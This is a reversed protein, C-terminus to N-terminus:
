EESEWDGMEYDPHKDLKENLEDIDVFDYTGKYYVEFVSEMLEGVSYEPFDKEFKLGFQEFDHDELGDSIDSLELINESDENMWVSYYLKGEYPEIKEEDDSDSGNIIDTYSMPEEYTPIDTIRTRGGVEKGMIKNFIELSKEDLYMPNIVGKDILYKMAAEPGEKKLIETLKKMESIYADKFEDGVKWVKQTKLIKGIIRLREAAMKVVSSKEDENLEPNLITEFAKFVTEFVGDLLRQMDDETKNLITENDILAVLDPLFSDKLKNLTEVVGDIDEKKMDKFHLETLPELKDVCSGLIEVTETSILDLSYLDIFNKFVVIMRRLPHTKKFKEKREAAKKADREERKKKLKEKEVDDSIIDELDDKAKDILDEKEEKSLGGEKMKEMAKKLSERAKEADSAVDDSSKGFQSAVDEANESINDMMKDIDRLTKDLEEESMGAPSKYLDDVVDEIDMKLGGIDGLKSEALEELEDQITKDGRNEKGLLDDLTKQLEKRAYRKEDDEADPDMLVKSAKEIADLIKLEIDDLSYGNRDLWDKYEKDGVKNMIEEWTMGTYEKKYLLNMRKFFGADVIGDEVMSANVEYDMCINAKMNAKKRAGELGDAFMEKPYMENFRLLHNFFVHFMEHFLIGFVRNSDMKCDNYVFNLNIWLNNRDDVCMTDTIDSPWVPLYMPKCKAMFQYLYPYDRMMKYIGDSCVKLLDTAKIKVYAKKKIDYIDVEGMKEIIDENGSSIDYVSSENLSKYMFNHISLINYKHFLFSTTTWKRENKHKIKM